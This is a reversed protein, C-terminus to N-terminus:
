LGAIISPRSSSASILATRSVRAVIVQASTSCARICTSTPSPGAPRRCRRVLPPQDGGVLGPVRGHGPQDRRLAPQLDERDDLAAVREAQEGVAVALVDVGPGAALHGASIWIAIPPWTRRPATRRRRRWRGPRRGATRWWRRRGSPRRAGAHGVREDGERRHLVAAEAVGVQDAPHEAVGVPRRRTSSSSCRCFATTRPSSSVLWCRTAASRSASSSRCSSIPRSIVSTRSCAAASPGRRVGIPSRVM